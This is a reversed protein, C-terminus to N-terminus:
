SARNDAVITGCHRCHWFCFVMYAEEFDWWIENENKMPIPPVTAVLDMNPELNVRTCKRNQCVDPTGSRQDSNGVTIEFWNSNEKGQNRVSFRTQPFADVKVSWNDEEDPIGDSLYFIDIENESVVSYQMVAGGGGYKLPYYLPLRRISDSSFPLFPDSLDLLLLKHTSIESGVPVAGNADAHGGFYHLGFKDDVLPQSIHNKFNLM